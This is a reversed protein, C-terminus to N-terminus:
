RAVSDHRSAFPLCVQFDLITRIAEEVKGEKDKGKVATSKVAASQAHDSTETNHDSTQLRPDLTETKTM